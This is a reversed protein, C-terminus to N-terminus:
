RSHSFLSEPPELPKNALFDIFSSVFFGVVMTGLIFLLLLLALSRGLDDIFETM